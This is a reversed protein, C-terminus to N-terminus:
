RDTAVGGIVPRLGDGKTLRRQADECGDFRGVRLPHTLQQCLPLLIILLLVVTSSAAAPPM